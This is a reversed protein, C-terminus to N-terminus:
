KSVPKDHVYVWLTARQQLDYKKGKRELTGAPRIVTVGWWGAEPLTTTLVGDTTTKTKRTIFEDAPLPERPSSSNYREIEVANGVLAMPMKKESGKTEKFMVAQAQFVTGPLL